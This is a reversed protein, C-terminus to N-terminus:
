KFNTLYLSLHLILKGNQTIIQLHRSRKTVPDWWEIPKLQYIEDERNPIQQSTVQETPTTEEKLTYDETDNDVSPSTVTTEVTPQETNVEQIQM